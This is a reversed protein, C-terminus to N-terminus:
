ELIDGHEGVTTMAATELHNVVLSQVHTELLRVFVDFATEGERRHADLAAMVLDVNAQGPTWERTQAGIVLTLAITM